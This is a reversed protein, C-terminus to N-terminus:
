ALGYKEDRRLLYLLRGGNLILSTFGGLMLGIILGRLGLNFIFGLVYCASIRVILFAFTQFCTPIKIDGRGNLPGMVGLPLSDIIIELLLYTTLASLASMVAPDKTFVGYITSQFSYILIDLVAINLLLILYGAKVTMRLEHADKKGYANAVVISTAQSVSFCVMFTIMSLITIIVFTAMQLEGLWGAFNSIISYSGNTAVTTIAVGYGIKRTTKSDTWWTDYKRDLGFRKNLKPNKQMHRIYLLIFMALFVRVILTSIASGRAGLEPMGLLGYVLVPNIMLNLINAGIGAYMAIHPRRISQLLFNGNAFMLIFPISFSFIMLVDGANEVMIEDQGMIRFLFKGNIGILTFITALVMMYKRGEHYIKGCSAFKHAGFKQSSKILVGQLLGIPITFLVSFFANALGIYALQDTNYNGVIITDVIGMIGVALFSITIPLSLKFIEKIKRFLEAHNNM